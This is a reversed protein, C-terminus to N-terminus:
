QLTGTTYPKPVTSVQYLLKKSSIETCIQHLIALNPKQGNGHSITFKQIKSLIAVNLVWPYM